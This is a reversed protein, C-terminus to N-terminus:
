SISYPWKVTAIKQAPLGCPSWFDLPRQCEKGPKWCPLFFETLANGHPVLGLAGLFIYVWFSGPFNYLWLKTSYIMLPLLFRRQLNSSKLLRAAFFLIRRGLSHLLLGCLCIYVRFWVTAALLGPLFVQMCNCWCIGRCVHCQPRPERGSGKKSTVSADEVHSDVFLDVLFHICAAWLSLQTSENRRIHRGFAVAVVVAINYRGGSKASETSCGLM